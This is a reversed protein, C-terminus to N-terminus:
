TRYYIETGLVDRPISRPNEVKFEAYGLNGESIRKARNSDIDLQKSEIYMLLIEDFAEQAKVQFERSRANKSCLHRRTNVLYIGGISCEFKNV